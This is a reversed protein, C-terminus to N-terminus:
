ERWGSRRLRTRVSEAQSTSLETFLSLAQELHERAREPEGLVLSPRPQSRGPVPGAEPAPRPGPLLTRVQAASAANDLLIAMTKGATLSRFLAAQQSVRGPISDPAAGLARLFGALVDGPRMADAPDHGGLEAFLVGDPYGEGAGHLWHSALSTKGLGGSGVIVVIAPRRAGDPGAAFDELTALEALRGTFNAPAVPMHRPACETGPRPSAAIRVDGFIARAQVVPGRAVGSLENRWADAGEPAWEGPREGSLDGADVQM